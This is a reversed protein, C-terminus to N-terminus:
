RAPETTRTAPAKASARGRARPTNAMLIREPAHSRAEGNTSPKPPAGAAPAHTAPASSTPVPSGRRASKARAAAARTARSVCPTLVREGQWPEDPRHRSADGSGSTRLRFITSHEAWIRAVM